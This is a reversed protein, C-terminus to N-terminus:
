KLDDQPRCFACFKFGGGKPGFRSTISAVAPMRDLRQIVDDNARRDTALLVQSVTPPEGVLANLAPLRMYAQLGVLEDVLGSVPLSVMPREGQLVKRPHPDFTYVVSEGDLARARDTVTRLIARHGIHIGDFNGITLVPRRPPGPLAASGRVVRM